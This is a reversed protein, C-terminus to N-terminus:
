IHILSLTMQIGENTTGLYTGIPAKPPKKKHKKGGALAGTGGALVLVLVAMTAMAAIRRIM